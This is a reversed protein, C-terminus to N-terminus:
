GRKTQKFKEKLIEISIANLSIIAKGGSELNKSFAHSFRSKFDQDVVRSYYSEFYLNFIQRNKEILHLKESKGLIANQSIRLSLFTFQKFIYDLYKSVDPYPSVDQDDSFVKAMFADLIDSQNYRAGYYGQLNRLDDKLEEYLRYLLDWERQEHLSQFHIKNSKVQEKFSIYILIAGIIGILPATLGNITDGLAAKSHIDIPPGSLLYIELIVAGTLVFIGLMFWLSFKERIIRISQVIPSKSAM